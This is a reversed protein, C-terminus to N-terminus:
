LGGVIPADHGEGNPGAYGGALIRMEESRGSWRAFHTQHCEAGGIEYCFSLTSVPLAADIPLKALDAYVAKPFSPLRLDASHKAILRDV